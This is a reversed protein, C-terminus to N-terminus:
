EHDYPFDFTHEGERVRIKTYIGQNADDIPTREARTNIVFSWMDLVMSFFLRNRCIQAGRCFSWTLFEM